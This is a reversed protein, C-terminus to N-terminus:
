VTAPSRVLRPPSSHPLTGFFSPDRCPCGQAGCFASDTHKEDAVQPRAEALWVPWGGAGPSAQHIGLTNEHGLTGAWWPEHRGPSAQEQYLGCWGQRECGTLTQQAIWRRGPTAEAGRRQWLCMDGKKRQRLVQFDHQPKQKGSPLPPLPTLPSHLLALGNVDRPQSPQETM